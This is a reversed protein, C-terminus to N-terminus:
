RRCEARPVVVACFSDLILGDKILPNGADCRARAQAPMNLPSTSAWGSIVGHRHLSGRPSDRLLISYMAM